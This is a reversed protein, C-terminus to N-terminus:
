KLLSLMKFQVPGTISCKLGKANSKKDKWFLLVPNAASFSKLRTDMSTENVQISQMRGFRETNSSEAGQM